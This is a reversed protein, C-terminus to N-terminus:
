LRQRIVRIRRLASADVFLWIAKIRRAERQNKRKRDLYLVPASTETRCLGRGGQRMCPGVMWALLARPVVIGAATPQDVLDCASGEGGYKRKALFFTGFFFAAASLTMALPPLCKADSEARRWRGTAASRECFGFPQERKWLGQRHASREGICRPDPEQLQM